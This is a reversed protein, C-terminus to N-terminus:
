APITAVQKSGGGFLVGLCGPNNNEVMKIEPVEIANATNMAETALQNVATIKSDLEQRLLERRWNRKRVAKPLGV